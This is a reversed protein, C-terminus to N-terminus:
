IQIKKHLLAKVEVAIRAHVFNNPHIDPPNFHSQSLFKYCELFEIAFGFSIKRLIGNLIDVEKKRFPLAYLLCIVRKTKLKALIRRYSFLLSAQELLTIKGDKVAHLLDNGGLSIVATDFNSTLASELMYRKYVGV